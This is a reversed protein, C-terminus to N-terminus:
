YAGRPDPLEASDQQRDAGGVAAKERLEAGPEQDAPPLEARVRLREFAPVHTRNGPRSSGKGFTRGSHDANPDRMSPSAYKSDKYGGSKSAYKSDSFGGGKAYTSGEYSKQTATGQTRIQPRAPPKM